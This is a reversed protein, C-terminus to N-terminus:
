NPSVHLRLVTLKGNKDIMYKPNKIPVTNIPDGGCQQELWRDLKSPVYGLEDKVHKKLAAITTSNGIGINNLFDRAVHIDNIWDTKVEKAKRM